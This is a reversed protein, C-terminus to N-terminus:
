TSILSVRVKGEIVLNGPCAVRFQLVSNLQYPDLIYLIYLISSILFSDTTGCVPIEPYNQDSTAVTGGPLIRGIDWIRHRSLMACM